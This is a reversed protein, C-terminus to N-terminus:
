TTEARRFYDAAERGLLVYAFVAFVLIHTVLEGKSHFASVVVHFAVWLMALWRAWNNGRLMFVGAVVALARVLLILGYGLMHAPTFERIHYLIGGLGTVILILSLLTVPTPRKKMANL